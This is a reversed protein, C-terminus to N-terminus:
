AVDDDVFDMVFVDVCALMADGLVVINIGDGDDSVEFSVVAANLEAM